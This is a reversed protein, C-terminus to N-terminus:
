ARSRPTGRSRSHAPTCGKDSAHAVRRSSDFAGRHDAPRLQGAGQWRGQTKITAGTSQREAVRRLAAGLHHRRRRFEAGRPHGRARGDSRALSIHEAGLRLPQARAGEVGLAGRRDELGRVHEHRHLPDQRRSDSRRAGAADRRDPDRRGASAAPLSRDLRHRAARALRRLRPDPAQPEPGPMRIANNTPLFVKTALVVRERRGAPALAKGTYRESLGQSYADATDIFNIGQGLAHEIIGISEKEGASRGFMMAGLCLSSVKVGTRGLNRYEM